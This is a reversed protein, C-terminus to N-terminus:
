IQSDWPICQYILIRLDCAGREIVPSDEERGQGCSPTPNAHSGRDLYFGWVDHPELGYRARCLDTRM